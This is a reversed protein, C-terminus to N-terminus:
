REVRQEQHDEPALRLSEASAALERPTLYAM